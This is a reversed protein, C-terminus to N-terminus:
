SKLLRQTKTQESEVEKSRILAKRAADEWKRAKRNPRSQLRVRVWEGDTDYSFCDRLGFKCRQASAEDFVTSGSFNCGKYKLRIFSHDCNETTVDWLLYKAAESDQLEILVEQDEKIATDLLSRLFVYLDTLRTSPTPQIERM